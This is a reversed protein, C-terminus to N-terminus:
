TSYRVDRSAQRLQQRPRRADQDVWGLTFDHSRRGLLDVRVPRHLHGPLRVDLVAGGPRAPLEQHQRRDAAVAGACRGAGELGAAGPRHARPLRGRANAPARGPECAGVGCSRASGRAARRHDRCRPRTSRCRTARTRSGPREAPPWGSTPRARSARRIPRSAGQVHRSVLEDVTGLELIKGHDMIAVRDCLKEAEEM